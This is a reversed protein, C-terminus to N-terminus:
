EEVAAGVGAAVAVAATVAVVESRLLDMPQILRKSIFPPILM